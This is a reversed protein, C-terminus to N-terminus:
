QNGADVQYHYAFGTPDMIIEGFVENGDNVGDPSLCSEPTVVIFDENGSSAVVPITSASNTSPHLPLNPAPKTRKLRNGKENGSLDSTVMATPLKARADSYSTTLTCIYNFPVMGPYFTCHSTVIRACISVDGFIVILYFQIGQFLRCVQNTLVM